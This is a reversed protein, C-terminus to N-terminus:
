KKSFLILAVVVLVLSIFGRGIEADGLMCGAIGMLVACTVLWGIFDSM